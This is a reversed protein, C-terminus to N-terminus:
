GVKKKVGDDVIGEVIGWGINLSLNAFTIIRNQLPM